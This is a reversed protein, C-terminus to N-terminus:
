TDRENDRVASVVASAIAAAALTGMTVLGSRIAGHPAGGTLPEVLQQWRSKKQLLYMTHGERPWGTLAVSRSVEDKAHSAEQSDQQGREVLETKTMSSRGEIEHATALEQLQDKTMAKLTTPTVAGNSRLTKAAAASRDRVEQAAAAREAAIRADRQAEAAVQEAQRQAEDAAARTAELADDALRRAEELKQTAAELRERAQAHSQEAERRAREIHEEAETRAREVSDDADEQAARRAEEVHEDAERQAEAVRSAVLEAQEAEVDALYARCREAVQEAEATEREAELSAQVADDEADQAEAAAARARQLRLEVSDGVPLADVVSAGAQRAMDLLGHAAADTARSAVPRPDLPSVAKRMLWTTNSPLDKVGTGLAKTLRRVPQAVPTSKESM